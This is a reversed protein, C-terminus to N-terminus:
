AEKGTLNAFQPESNVYPPLEDLIGDLIAEDFEDSVSFVFRLQEMIKAKEDEVPFLRSGDTM